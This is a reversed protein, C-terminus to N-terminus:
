NAGWHGVCVDLRGGEENMWDYGGMKMGHTGWLGIRGHRVYVHISWPPTVYPRSVPLPTTIHNMSLLFHSKRPGFQEASNTSCVYQEWVGWMIDVGALVQVSEKRGWEVHDLWATEIESITICLRALYLRMVLHSHSYISNTCYTCSVALFM